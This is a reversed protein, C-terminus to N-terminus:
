FSSTGHYIVRISDRPGVWVYVHAVKVSLSSNANAKERGNKMTLPDRYRTSETSEEQNDPNRGGNWNEIEMM